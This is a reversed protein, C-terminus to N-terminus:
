SLCERDASARRRGRARQAACIGEILTGKARSYADRDNPFEMAAQKKTVGYLRAAEPSSRLYDRFLLHERLPESGDVCVYLHHRPEGAPWRFAERGPVGLDGEHEYGLSALRQIATQVDPPSRVIVDLDIVPKAALGPVATSGVHEIGVAVDGLVRAVRARLREFERPWDPDYDVVVVPDSSTSM